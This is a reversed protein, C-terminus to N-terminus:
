TRLQRIARCVNQRYNKTKKRRIKEVFIEGCVYLASGSFDHKSVVRILILITLFSICCFRFYAHGFHNM